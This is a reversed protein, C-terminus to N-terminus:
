WDNLDTSTQPLNKLFNDSVKGTIRLADEFQQDLWNAANHTIGIYAKRMLSRNVVIDREGNDYRKRTSPFSDYEFKNVLDSLLIGNGMFGNLFIPKEVRLYASWKRKWEREQIEIDSAIDRGDKFKLATAKGFIAYDNPNETMRAMYIIDGDNVQRPKKNKPFGCAYHCLAREIETKIPFDLEVRNDAKGFFKIYYNVSININTKTAGYDPLTAAKGKTTNIKSLKSEWKLCENINLNQGAIIKLDNFHNHLNTIIKKDTLYIGCEENNRLGGNTLNASTIIAVRKDFLYVKSHLGKIGYVMAGNNVAFKLGELSSVKLAFDQLNYRTILEFNRFNFKSEIKRLIQEGLFPSIVKLENTKVLEQLLKNYWNKLYIEM